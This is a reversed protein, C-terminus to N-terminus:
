PSFLAIGAQNSLNYKGPVVMVNIFMLFPAM